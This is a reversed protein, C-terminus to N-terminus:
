TERYPAYVETRWTAPDPQSVPDSFYVEWADGDPVFGRSRMWEDIAAYAPEMNAYPGIHVTVAAPGGPLTSVQVADTPDIPRLAPFGAEIEFRQGDLRHFRAFPPGAPGAGQAGLVAAV